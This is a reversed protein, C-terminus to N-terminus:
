PQWVDDAVEPHLEIKNRYEGLEGRVFISDGVSLTQSFAVRDWERDFLVSDIEANSTDDVLTIRMGQKFPRLDGVHGQVTVWQGVLPQGLSDINRLQPAPMAVLQIDSAQGPLLQKSDRFEGVSATISLWTGINIPATVSLEEPLLLTTIASDERLTLLKMGKLARIGRVQGRTSVRAGLPMADLGSLEIESPAPETMHMADASNLVLSAEDDRIRLTGELDIRQGPKPLQQRTLLDRVVAGYANVRIDNNANGNMQSLRFSLTERKSDVIPYQTILGQIRVYAFNMSPQIASLATVPRATLRSALVLAIVGTVALLTVLVKLLKM